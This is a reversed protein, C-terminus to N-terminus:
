DLKLGLCKYSRVREIKNGSIAINPEEPITSLKKRSAMFMCKTKIANLSLKNLNLWNQLTKLDDNLVSILKDPNSDAFTLNTDDAFLSGDSVLENNPLDNIYILFLLPGLISGQPVGCTVKRTDSRINNIVTIQTRDSLYNRFLDITEKNFGYCTLKILPVLTTSKIRNDGTTLFGLASLRYNITVVIVGGVAVINSGEYMGSHGAVFSGGHIWVMVSANQPRPFPTWVNLILCDETMTVKPKWPQICAIIDETRNLVGKWPLKPEPKKFRLQGVP